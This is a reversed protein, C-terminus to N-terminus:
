ARPFKSIVSNTSGKAERFEFELVKSVPWYCIQQFTSFPMQQPFGEVVIIGPLPPFYLFLGALKGGKGVDQSKM